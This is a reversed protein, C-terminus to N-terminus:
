KNRTVVQKNSTLNAKHMECRWNFSYTLHVHPHMANSWLEPNKRSLASYLYENRLLRSNSFCCCMSQSISVLSSVWSDTPSSPQLPFRQSRFTCSLKPTITECQNTSGEATISKYNHSFKHTFKQNKYAQLREDSILVIARLGGTCKPWIPQIGHQNM